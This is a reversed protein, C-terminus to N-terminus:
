GQNSKENRPLKLFQNKKLMLENPILDASTLLFLFASLFEYAGTFAQVVTKKHCIKNAGSKHGLDLIEEPNAIVQKGKNCDNVIFLFMKNLDDVIKRTEYNASKFITDRQHRVYDLERSGKEISEGRDILKKWEVLLKLYEKIRRYIDNFKYHIRKLTDKSDIKRKLRDFYINYEVINTAFLFSFEREFFDILTYIIFIKDNIQFLSRADKSEIFFNLTKPFDLNYYILKLGKRTEEAINETQEINELANEYATDYPQNEQEAAQRAEREQKKKEQEAQERWLNTYHGIHNSEDSGLFEKISSKKGLAVKQEKHYYDILMEIRPFYRSFVYEISNTVVRINNNVMGPNLKSIKEEMKLVVGAANELVHHYPALIYMEKFLAIFGNKAEKIPNLTNQASEIEELTEDKLLNDFRYILEYYYSHDKTNLADKILDAVAKNQYLVSTLIQHANKLSAKFYIVTEEIFKKSFHNGWLNFIRAFICALKASLLSMRNDLKEDKKKQKTIEEMIKKRIKERDGFARKEQIHTKDQPPEAGSVATTQSQKVAKSSPKSTASSAPSSTASSSTKAKKKEAEEMEKAIREKRAKAEKERLEKERVFANLKELEKTKDDDEIEVVKGGVKQFDKYLKSRNDGDIKEIELKSRIKSIKKAM